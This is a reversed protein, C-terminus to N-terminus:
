ATMAPLKAQALLWGALRDVPDAAGNGSAAIAPVPPAVMALLQRMEEEQQWASWAQVAKRTGQPSFSVTLRQHLQLAPDPLHVFEASGEPMLAAIAPGPTKMAAALSEPRTTQMVLTGPTILRGLLVPPSPARVVFVIKQAGDAFQAVEGAWLDAGDIEIVVPPAVSREARTWRYRPLGHLVVAHEAADYRGGRVLESVLMAGFARGLDGLVNALALNLRGGPPVEMHFREDPLTAHERLIAAARRVMAREGEDLVPRDSWLTSFREIDIRGAAFGGLASAVREHAPDDALSALWADVREAAVQVTGRYRDMSERLAQLAVTSREDSPM